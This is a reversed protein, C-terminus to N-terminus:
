SCKDPVAMQYFANLQNSIDFKKFENPFILEFVKLSCVTTRLFLTQAFEATERDFIYNFNIETKGGTSDLERIGLSDVNPHAGLDISQEYMEILQAAIEEHSQSLCKSVKSWTFVNRFEKLFEESRSRDRNLNFFEPKANLFNAYAANEIMLRQLCFSEVVIGATVLNACALYSSIQQHLFKKSLSAGSADVAAAIKQQLEYLSKIANWSWDNNQFIVLQNNSITQFANSLADQGWGEPVM